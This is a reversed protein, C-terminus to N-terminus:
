EVIRGTEFRRGLRFAFGMRGLVFPLVIILSLASITLLPALFILILSGGADGLRFLFTDIIGKGQYQFSRPARTYLVERAANYVSYTCAFSAILWFTTWSLPAGSVFGGIVFLDCLPPLLLGIIVGLRTLLWGTVLVQIVIGGVNIWQYNVAYLATRSETDPLSAEVQRAYLYQNINMSLTYCLVMAALLLLYRQRFVLRLGNESGDAQPAATSWADTESSVDRIQRDTSDALHLCFLAVVLFVATLYLLTGVGVQQVFWGTLFSGCMAGAPGGAGILGFLRKAYETPFIENVFAWFLAMAFLIFVSVWLFYAIILAGRLSTLQTRQTPLSVVPLQPFFSEMLMARDAQVLSQDIPRTARFALGFLLFISVFLIFLLTGLRRRSLRRVLLDYGFGVAAVAVINFLHLYPLSGTGVELSLGERVPKAIYYALMTVFLFLFCVATKRWEGGPIDQYLTPLPPRM